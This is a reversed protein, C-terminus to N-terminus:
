EYLRKRHKDLIEDIEKLARHAWDVDIICNELNGYHQELCTVLLTKIASENPKEPLTSQRYLEELQKEKSSAWSRIEAESIDGRRIAKLFEKDKRLDLDGTALLQEAYGLLRCVHMGFKLDFGFEERLEKRKGSPDKTTMKHLQSLAYGKYRPFCYKSLFLHRNERVLNGIQTAHLVCEQPVYLSDIVSPNCQMLLNFLKIISFIQLDYSRGKGGFEDPCRIHHQQFQEFKEGQNGFNYIVGALHPFVIMKPPVTWGYIDMDSTDSSAGYAVSGILAEYHVNASLWLPPHILGKDELKKVTSPM